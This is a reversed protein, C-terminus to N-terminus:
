RDGDPSPEDDQARRAERARRRDERRQRAEDKRMQRGRNRDAEAESTTVADGVAGVARVPLTVVSVATRALCGSLMAALALLVIARM